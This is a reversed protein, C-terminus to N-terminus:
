LKKKFASEMSRDNIRKEWAISLLKFYYQKIRSSIIVYFKPVEHEKNPTYLVWMTLCVPFFFCFRYGIKIYFYDAVHRTTHMACLLSFAIILGGASTIQTIFNIHCLAGVSYNKPTVAIYIFSHSSHIHM